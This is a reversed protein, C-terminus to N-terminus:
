LSKNFYKQIGLNLPTKKRLVKNIKKSDYKRITPKNNNKIFNIVTEKGGHYKKVIKALNRYTTSKGTVLNFVGNNEKESVNYIAECVDKVNIHDRMDLGSGFVNITNNNKVQRIFRNPGYSNHTDGDGYILTPRLITLKKEDLIDKLIFERTLHMLGYLDDPSPQTTENVLIEKQSYVADSSIYTFHSISSLKFFSIFNKLMAINDFYTKFGKGKDPTLASFFIIKYNGRLKSLSKSSNESILNIKKSSIISFKKKKSKLLKQFNKSLFGSSGILLYKM